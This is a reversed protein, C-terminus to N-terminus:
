NFQNKSIPTARVVNRIVTLRRYNESANHNNKCLFLNYKKM